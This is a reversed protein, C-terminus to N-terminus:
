NPGNCDATKRELTNETTLHDVSEFVYVFVFNGQATKGHFIILRWFSAHQLILFGGSNRNETM